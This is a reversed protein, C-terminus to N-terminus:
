IPQSRAARAPAPRGADRLRGVVRRTKPLELGRAEGLALIAGSIADIETARGRDLDQLMSSRNSATARVVGFLEREAEERSFEVGESAAVARAEELLDLAQGRWPAEVLRGNEIRHMATVPNIAANVLLKRWVERPFDDVRRVEFGASSLREAWGETASRRAPVPARPLAISGVGTERAAGPEILTAPLSTVARVWAPGDGSGVAASYGDSATREPDFGNQVLLTPIGPRPGLGASAEALDYTKVALLVADAPEARVPFGHISPRAHAPRPGEIRLGNSRLRDVHAPRVAVRVSQGSDALRVALLTGVAGAGVVLIPRDPM